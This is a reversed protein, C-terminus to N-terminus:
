IEEFLILESTLATPLHIKIGNVKLENGTVEFTETNNDLTVRYKKSSDIGKLHVRDSNLTPNAMRFVAAAGKSKDPTGIELIYLENSDTEIEPTHHYVICEPLIPRIFRKYIDTSHKIFELQQSNIQAGVPAIVNLSMHGLMTNRLQLELSGYKHCGMGAFLRDVREPPLAMTASNTITLSIPACQNDSVWTHHFFRMIGLDTRGGGGACNEFVVDPFRKKLNEYMKYVANFHRLSVCEQKEDVVARIAFYDRHSTNYDVRLLDLKYETIIRALEDEAWKAAEPVTFDLFRDTQKGFINDGRWQPKEKFERCYKGLNEIDVWLGFKMGNEHCYDAIETIGNPYRAPDPTNIGNYNGWEVENYPPCQWGADVIFVEGGMEKFQRIFAKSTEVSMDHEAGMGCGILNIDNSAGPLNLVSRRIHSHMERIIDDSDGIAHCMVVCPSTFVEKGELVYMPNHATIEAKFSLYADDRLLPANLDATFRCGGSWCLQSAWIKGNLNNKIFIIPHRFRDRNFRTDISVAYCPLNHWKFSGEIGWQESEFYGISYLENRNTKESYKKAETEDIGGGLITLRSLNMTSDSLNEIEIWRSFAQSGDFRTFIKLRIPKIESELILKCLIGGDTKESNFDVFKLGYDLSQGDIEINFAFPETFDDSDLRSPFNSLVNLPYGACNYGASVLCGGMFAEEYVMNGSRYSFVPTEGPQYYADFFKKTNELFIM